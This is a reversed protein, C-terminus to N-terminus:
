ASVIEQEHTHSIPQNPIPHHNQMVTLPVRSPNSAEPQVSNSDHANKCFYFYGSPTAEALTPMMQPKTLSRKFPVNLPTISIKTDTDVTIPLVTHQLMKQQQQVEQQIQNLQTQMNQEIEKFRAIELQMKERIETIELEREIDRQVNSILMKIQRYWKVAARIANPLKDPGLVIVAIIAFVLLESIGLNLM